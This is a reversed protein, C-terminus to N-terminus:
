CASSSPGESRPPDGVHPPGGLGSRARPRSAQRRPFKKGSPEAGARRPPPEPSKAPIVPTPLPPLSRNELLLKLEQADLTERELLAESIRDLTPATSSHADAQGRRLAQAPHRTIEEDIERAKSESYDKRSVFDRGLFVDHEDDAFSVPGIKDSMGYSCVM